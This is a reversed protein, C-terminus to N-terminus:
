ANEKERLTKRAHQIVTEAVSVSEGLDKAPDLLADITEPNLHATVRQDAKLIDVFPEGTEAAKMAAEYIIHHATQKGTYAGLAFMLHESSIQGGTIALNQLMRDKKVILGEAITVACRLQFSTYLVTEPVGIWIGRWSMADRENETMMGERVLSAAAWVPRTLSALTEFYAPNRKQPMTSSGIEGESFPEEWEDFETRMLTFGEHGIKGLTASLLALIGTYEAFRDQAAHWCIRPATLGLIELARKEIAPGKEGYSAFTGIAGSLVGTFDRAAAEDLRDLHRLLEDVWVALKFGVTFPIAQTGHSRGAMPTTKYEEARDTLARILRILDRRILAHSEKLQLVMGTDTIDQTTAGYHVYEGADGSLRQLIRIMPMLSHKVTRGIAAMEEFDFRSGDCAAAIAEAADKPILGLEGEALALAREVDLQRQLRNREDWIARMEPTSFNNQLTVMDFVHSAM